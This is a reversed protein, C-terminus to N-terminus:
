VGAVAATPLVHVSEDTAVNIALATPAGNVTPDGTGTMEDPVDVAVVVEVPPEPPGAPYQWYTM